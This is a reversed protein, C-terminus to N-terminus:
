DWISIVVIKDLVLFSHQVEEIVYHSVDLSVILRPSAPVFLSPLYTSLRVRVPRGSTSLHAPKREECLLIDYLIEYTVAVACCFCLM